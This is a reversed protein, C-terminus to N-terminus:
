LWNAKVFVYDWGYYGGPFFWPLTFIIIFFIVLPIVFIANRLDEGEKVERPAEPPKSWGFLHWLVYELM